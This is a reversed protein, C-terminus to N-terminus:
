ILNQISIEVREDSDKKVIVTVSEVIRYNDDEFIVDEILKVMGGCANSCDLPRSKFYFVYTVAYKGSKPFVEKFQSQILIKYTDKIQKRKAWHIGSYWKNLSIKPLNRLTIM